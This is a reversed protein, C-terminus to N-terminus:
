STVGSLINLCNQMLYQPSAGPRYGVDAESGFRVDGYFFFGALAPNRSGASGAGFLPLWIM